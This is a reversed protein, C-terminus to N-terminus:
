FIRGYVASPNNRREQGYKACRTRNNFSLVLHCELHPKEVILSEFVECVECLLCAKIHVVCEVELHKNAVYIYTYIRLYEPTGTQVSPHATRLDGFYEHVVSVDSRAYYLDDRARRRLRSWALEWDFM